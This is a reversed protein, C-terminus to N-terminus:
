YDHGDTMMQSQVRKSRAGALDKNHSHESPEITLIDGQTAMTARCKCKNVEQYRWNTTGNAKKKKLIYEYGEYFCVEAGRWTKYFERTIWNEECESSQSSPGETPNSSWIERFEEKFVDKVMQVKGSATPVTEV